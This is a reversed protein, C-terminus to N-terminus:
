KRNYVRTEGNKPAIFQTAGIDTKKLGEALEQVPTEIGEDTLRFTGFHIGLSLRSQLDLHAQIADAPNLHQPGMFWRPEYAGIALLSVDMPGFRKHTEKYHPGYGSDGGFYIKLDKSEIVFGGWLTENRDFPTRSSWHQVQTLHVTEGSPLTTKQWWDLEIVNKAGAEELLSKLGLPALFLPSHSQSIRRITPLDLHDYHSHSILVLDIRPLKEFEIGPARRRYPGAWSVPSARKSFIPDTLINLGKLQILYTSHNVFTLVAQNEPVEGSALTPAVNDDVWEPWETKESTMQWKLFDFFSKDTAANPNFFRKGDFHDSKQYPSSSCSALLLFFGPLIKKFLSVSAAKTSPSKKQM